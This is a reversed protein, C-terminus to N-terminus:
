DNRRKLSLTNTVEIYREQYTKMKSEYTTRPIIKLNYYDNQIGRILNELARKKKRLEVLKIHYLYKNISSAFIFLVAALTLTISIVAVLNNKLSIIISTSQANLNQSALKESQVATIEKNLQALVSFAKDFEGKSFYGSSEDLLRKLEDSEDLSDIRSEAQEFDTIFNGAKTYLISAQIYLASVSEFSDINNLGERYLDNVQATSINHSNFFVIISTMNKLLTVSKNIQSMRDFVSKIAKTDQDTQATQLKQQMDTLEFLIDTTNTEAKLKILNLRTENVLLLYSPWINSEIHAILDDAEEYRGDSILEDIQSIIKKDLSLLKMSEIFDINEFLQAKQGTLKNFFLTANLFLDAAWSTKQPDTAELYIDQFRQTNYGLTNIESITINMKQLISAASDTTSYDFQVAQVPLVLILLILFSALKNM